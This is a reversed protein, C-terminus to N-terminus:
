IGLADAARDYEQPSVYIIYGYRGEGASVATSAFVNVNASYLQEHITALAGMEDDGQVMIACHPGDLVLGAGEATTQLKPDDDPFITLQTSTPGVPVATFAILNVGLEALQSLLKYGEGLQDRITTHFYDVRRVHSSM